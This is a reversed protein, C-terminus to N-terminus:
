DETYLIGNVLISNGVVQVSVLEGNVLVETTDGLGKVMSDEEHAFCNEQYWEMMEHMSNFSSIGPYGPFIDMDLPSVCSIFSLSIVIALIVWIKKMKDEKLREM